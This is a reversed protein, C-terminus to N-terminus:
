RDTPAGAGANALRNLLPQKLRRHAAKLAGIVAPADLLFRLTRARAREHALTQLGAIMDRIDITEIDLAFYGAEITSLDLIDGILAALSTASTLIGQGYEMQRENLKGFYQNVLLEAFGVIVNLPTRLEYSVNAIFESKLRDAAELAANKETLADALKTTDTVDLYLCLINGDTLTVTTFRLISGDLRELKEDLAAHSMFRAVLERR